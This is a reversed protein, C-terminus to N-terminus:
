ATPELQISDLERMLRAKYEELEQEEKLRKREKMQRMKNYDDEYDQTNLLLMSVAFGFLKGFM